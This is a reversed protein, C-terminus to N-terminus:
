EAFVAERMEEGLVAAYHFIRAAAEENASVQMSVGVPKPLIMGSTMLTKIVPDIDGNISVSITMDQNDDYVASYWKGLSENWIERLGINTGDWNNSATKIRVLQRYQEDTIVTGAPLQDTPIARSINALEAVVNLQKGEAKDISFLEPIRFAIEHVPDIKELIKTLEAMFRPRVKHQSTINDLYREIDM